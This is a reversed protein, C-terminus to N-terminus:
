RSKVKVSRDSREFDYILDAGVSVAKGADDEYRIADVSTRKLAFLEDVFQGTQPFNDTRCNSIAGGKHTCERSATRNGFHRISPHTMALDLQKTIKDFPAETGPPIWRFM